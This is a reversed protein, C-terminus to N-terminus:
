KMPFGIMHLKEMPHIRSEEPIYNSLPEIIAAQWSCGEDLKPVPKSDSFGAVSTSQRDRPVLFHRHSDRRIVPSGNPEMLM